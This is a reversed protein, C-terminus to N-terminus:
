RAKQLFAFGVKAGLICYERRGRWEFHSLPEKARNDPQPMGSYVRAPDAVV